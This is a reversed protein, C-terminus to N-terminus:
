DSLDGVFGNTPVGHSELEQRTRAAGKDSIDAVVVTAGEQGFRRATAAGIGQGAGTIISVKDQLRRAGAARPSLTEDM